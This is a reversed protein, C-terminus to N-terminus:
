ASRLALGPEALVGVVADQQQFGAPTVPVRQDVDRDPHAFHMFESEVVPAVHAFRVLREITATQLDLTALHQATRGRYVHHCVGATMRVIVITPRTVAGGSPRM